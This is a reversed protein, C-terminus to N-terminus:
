NHNKITNCNVIHKQYDNFWYTKHCKNCYIVNILKDSNGHNRQNTQNTLNTLIAGM